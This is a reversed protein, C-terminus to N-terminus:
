VYCSLVRAVFVQDGGILVGEVVENDAGAKDFLFPM